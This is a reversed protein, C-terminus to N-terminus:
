ALFGVWKAGALFGQVGFNERESAFENQNVDFYHAWLYGVDLSFLGQAMPYTYTIGLRSDMGPITTRKSGLSYRTPFPGMVTDQFKGNGIFLAGAGDAYVGFGNGLDYSLDMGARPGIGDFETSNSRTQGVPNNYISKNEIFRLYAAGGHFRINTQESFNVRQGLELNIADWQPKVSYTFPVVPATSALVQSSTKRFHYWNLDIDNGTNFHFSGELKYGWGWDHDLDDYYTNVGVLRSQLYEQNIKQLYLAQIGFDWATSECPLNVSGPLCAAGMAGAFLTSSGLLLTALTLKKLNRM